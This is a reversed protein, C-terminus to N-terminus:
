FSSQSLFSILSRLSDCHETITYASVVPLPQGLLRPYKWFMRGVEPMFRDTFLTEIFPRRGNNSPCSFLDRYTVLYLLPHLFSSSSSCWWHLKLLLALHQCVPVPSVVGNTGFGLEISRLLMSLRLLVQNGWWNFLVSFHYSVVEHPTAFISSPLTGPVSYASLWLVSTNLVAWSRTPAWLQIMLLMVSKCALNQTVHKLLYRM